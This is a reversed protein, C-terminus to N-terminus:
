NGLVIIAETQIFWNKQNANAESESTAKELTM